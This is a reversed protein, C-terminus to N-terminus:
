ARIAKELTGRAQPHRLKQALKRLWPLKDERKLQRVLDFLHNDRDRAYRAFAQELEVRPYKTLPDDLGTQIVAWEFLTGDTPKFRFTRLTNELRQELTLFADSLEHPLEWLEQGRGGHGELEDLWGKHATATSTSASMDTLEGTSAQSGIAQGERAPRLAAVATNLMVTAHNAFCVRLRQAPQGHHTITAAHKVVGTGWQPKSAHVM